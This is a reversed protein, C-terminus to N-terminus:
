RGRRGFRFTVSVGAQTAADAASYLNSIRRDFYMQFTLGGPGDYVARGTVYPGQGGLRDAAMGAGAEFRWNRGLPQVTAVGASHIERNAFPLPAYREGSRATVRGISTAHETDFGYEANWQGRRGPAAFLPVALGGSVGRTSAANAVGRLGYRSIAAAVWATARGIRQRRMLEVRDRTGGQALGEAFEWFPRAYEAAAHTSGQLDTRDWALGAGARSDGGFLSARWTSGGLTSGGVYLEGRSRRGDLSREEGSVARYRDVFARGAELRYGIRLSPSLVAHGAVRAADLSWIGGANRRESDVQVQDRQGRWVSERLQRAEESGAQTSQALPRLLAEARRWRGVHQEVLAMGLIASPDAEAAATGAKVGLSEYRRAAKALQGRGLDIRARLVEFKAREAPSPKARGSVASMEIRLQQEGRPSATWTVERAATLLITDYGAAVGAVWDKPLSAFQTEVGPPLPGAARILLERGSAQTKVPLATGWDAIIELPQAAALMGPRDAADLVAEAEDWKSQELLLAAWEARLARDVPDEALLKEFEGRASADGLRHRLQAAAVRGARDPAAPTVAAKLGQEYEAKAEAKRGERELLQGHLLHMEPDSGGSKKWAEFYGLSPKTRGGAFAVRALWGLAERDGPERRVVQQWAREAPDWLSEELAIRGALRLRAVDGSPAVGPAGSQAAVERDLAVALGTLDRAAQLARFYIEPRPPALHEGARVARDGAGAYVLADLWAAADEGSAERARRELWDLGNKPPRPGWLFLLQRVDASSAPANEALMLLAREATPREGAELLRHAVGRRDEAQTDAALARRRWLASLEESKGLADLASEYASTWEGARRNGGALERESMRRLWPLSRDIPATELMLFMRQALAEQKLDGRALERELFRELRNGDGAERAAEVFAFLWAEGRTRALKEAEPVATAWAKVDILARVLAEREATDLDARALRPKAYQELEPAVPLKAAAAAMLAAPYIAAAREEKGATERRVRKAIEWQAAVHRNDAAAYYLEILVAPDVQRKRLWELVADSQGSSMALMAWAPGSGPANLRAVGKAAEGRAMYLRAMQMGGAEDLDDPSIKELQALAREPEQLKEWEGALAIRDRPRLPSAEAKVMWRRAENKDGRGLAIEVALLPRAEMWGAGRLKVLRDVLDRRKASWAADAFSVLLWEPLQEVREPDLLHAASELDKRALAMDLYAEWLAKPLKDRQRALRAFASDNRGLAREAAVVATLLEVNGAARPEWPELLRWALDGKGRTVLMSGLAGAAGADDHSGLWAAAEEYAKDEKGSELLIRVLFQADGEGFSEPSAKRWAMLAAATADRNGAAAELQSLRLYDGADAWGREVLRALSRAQDGPRSLLSYLRALERVDNENAGLAVIAEANEIRQDMRQTERYVEGLKRRAEISKPNARVYEELAGTARDIDGFELYIRELAAIVEPSRDGAALRAEYVARAAGFDSDKLQMLGVEIDRPVLAFGSLVAAGVWLLVTM